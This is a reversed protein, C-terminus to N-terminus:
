GGMGMRGMQTWGLYLGAGAEDGTNPLSGGMGLRYSDPHAVPRAAGGFNQLPGTEGAFRNVGYGPDGTYGRATGHSHIGAAMPSFTNNAIAMSSALAVSQADPVFEVGTVVRANNPIVRQRAM